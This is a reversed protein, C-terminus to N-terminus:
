YQRMAPASAHAAFVLPAPVELVDRLAPRQAAHADARQREPHAAALAELQHQRGVRDRLEVGLDVRAALVQAQAVQAAAVAAEDVAREDLVRREDLAVDDVEGVELEAHAAGVHALDAAVGLPPGRGHREAPALQRVAERLARALQALQQALAVHRHHELRDHQERAPRHRGVLREAAAAVRLQGLARELQQADGLADAALRLQRRRNRRRATSSM